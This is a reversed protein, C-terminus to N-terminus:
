LEEVGYFNRVQKIIATLNYGGELYQEIDAKALTKSPILVNKGGSHCTACNGEFVEKGLAADYAFAPTASSLVVAVAAAAAAAQAKKPVAGAGGLEATM